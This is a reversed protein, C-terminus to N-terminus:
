EDRPRPSEVSNVHRWDDGLHPSRGQFGALEGGEVGREQGEIPRDAGTMDAQERAQVVVHFGLFEEV